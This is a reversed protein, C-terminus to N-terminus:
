DNGVEKLNNFFYGKQIMVVKISRAAAFAILTREEHSYVEKEEKILFILCSNKRSFNMSWKEILSKTLNATILVHISNEQLRIRELELVQDLPINGDDRIKALSYFLRRLQTEGGRIQFYEREKGTSLMGVQVGKLLASRIFTAAFSIITEIHRDSICDIIVMINASQSQEFKKVMMENQKASVKWNIWSLRDGPQYSRVGSVVATDRQIHKKSLLNGQEPHSSLLRYDLEEYAPYVIIKDKASLTIEKEVLGLLDGTKIIIKNFSHEGRNLNQIQYTLISQKKIIPFLFKKSNMEDEDALSAPLKDEVILYFLPFFHKRTITLKIEALEGFIFESKNLQRMVEVDSLPYCSVALAYLAFPVFSFFLFWSVFGGQFMAYSFTIAILLFLVTLKWIRKMKNLNTKM